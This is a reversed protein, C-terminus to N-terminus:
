CIGKGQGEFGIVDFGNQSLFKLMFFWEEVFSDFGGHLLITGKKQGIAEFRIVPIKGIEYPIMERKFPEESVAKYFVESFKDYITEKRVHDHTTYFESSRYYIAANLLRGEQEAREAFRTMTKTWYNFTKIDKGMSVCDDFKAMGISHWRNLQFNFVKQNHFRYYGVPFDVVNESM